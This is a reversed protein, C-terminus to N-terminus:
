HLLQHYKLSNPPIECEAGIALDPAIRNAERLRQMAATMRTRVDAPSLTNVYIRTSGEFGALTSVRWKINVRWPMPLDLGPPRHHWEENSAIEPGAAAHCAHILDSMAQLEADTQCWPECTASRSHIELTPYRHGFGAFCIAHENAAIILNHQSAYDVGWENYMNPNARLQTIEHNSQAGREDIAVLQKHLHDFSAGAPALWNQFAVVYRAYRNRQYLDAMAATTFRLYAAHEAVSLTGASALQSSDVAEEAYHRRAIIVDHGGGFYRDSFGLLEEETLSEADQDRGAAQLWTRVIDLVHRRGAEDALYRSQRQATEVDMRHGYNMAWFEYSVIEFLNPVRRFDAPAATIEDPVLGQRVEWGDDGRVMRSKEPPTALPRDQCFACSDTHDAPTLKRADPDPHTLPRNGRGPVTWVETQNYPHIQKITGDAMTTLPPPPAPAPFSM